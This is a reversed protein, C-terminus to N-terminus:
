DKARVPFSTGAILVKCPHSQQSLWDLQAQIADFSGNKSLDGAHLLVDGDPLEPQLDHTDSICVIRVPDNPIARSQPVARWSMFIKALYILPSKRFQMWPTLSKKRAWPGSSTDLVPKSITPRAM